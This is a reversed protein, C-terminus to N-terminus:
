GHLESAVFWEDVTYITPLVIIWKGDSQEMFHSIWLETEGVEIKPEPEEQARVAQFAEWAAEQDVSKPNSYQNRYKHNHAAWLGAMKAQYAIRANCADEIDVLLKEASDYLIPLTVDCHYTCGDGVTYHVVLRM